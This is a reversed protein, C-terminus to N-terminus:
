KELIDEKHSNLHDLCDYIDYFQGLKKTITIGDEKAANLPNEYIGYLTDITEDNQNYLQYYYIENNIYRHYIEKEGNFISEANEESKDLYIYLSDSIEEIFFQEDLTKLGYIKLEDINSILFESKDFPCERLEQFQEDSYDYKIDILFDNLGNYILEYFLDSPNLTVSTNVWEATGSLSKNFANLTFLDDDENYEFYINDYIIESIEDAWEEIFENVIEEKSNAETSMIEFTESPYGPDFDIGVELISNDETLFFTPNTFDEDVSEAKKIVDDLTEAKEQTTDKKYMIKMFKEYINDNNIDIDKIKEKRGQRLLKNIM